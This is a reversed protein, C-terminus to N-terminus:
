DLTFVGFNPHFLPPTTTRLLFGAIDGFRFLITGLNSNIVLLFNCVRKRNTGFDIVKSSCSRGNRLRNRFVHTKPAWSCKLSSLGVSDAAFIYCMVGTEPLILNIRINRPSFLCRVVTLNDFVDIKLAKSCWTKPVKPFLALMLKTGQRREVLGLICSRSHGNKRYMRSKEVTHRCGQLRAKPAQSYSTTLHRRVNLRFSCCRAIEKRYCSKRTNWLASM